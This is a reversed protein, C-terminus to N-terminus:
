HTQSNEAFCWHVFQPMFREVVPAPVDTEGLRQYTFEIEGNPQAVGLLFGYVDTEAARAQNREPPLRYRVAGATGVIWGPLVGGHSHWYDTNFAGDMFYHSHSALVYVHKHADNQAKLLDAYVRLGSEVGAASQNMSHNESLSYPLPEHMGVVVTRILPNSSDAQLVKEFWTVQASSFQDPTANDLNIFDIGGEIWHYYTKLKRDYGDDNLRQKRLVPSDLWDAFQILFADRTMPPITDHNGIGLFVPLTGFPMLQNQIFDDWASTLYDSINMPKASHEPEHQMDEDFNYIARLDGLHWYFSAGSHRVGAAIAPMVIDGCNRSDGSVAFSWTNSPPADSQPSGSAGSQAFTARSLLGFWALAMLAVPILSRQAM